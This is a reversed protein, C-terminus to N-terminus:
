SKFVRSKRLPGDFQVSVMSAIVGLIAVVLLVELLTFGSRPGSPGPMM